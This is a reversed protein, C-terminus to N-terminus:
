TSREGGALITKCSFLRYMDMRLFSYVAALKCGQHLDLLLGFTNTIIVFVLLFPQPKNLQWTAEIDRKDFFIGSAYRLATLSCHPFCVQPRLTSSPTSHTCESVQPTPLGWILGASSCSTCRM